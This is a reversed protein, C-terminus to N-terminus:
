LAMTITDLIEIDAGAPHAKAIGNVARTVTLTQTGAVVVTLVRSIAAAGGTVTMTAAPVIQRTPIVQSMVYLSQDNGTITSAEVIETWGAPPAVSTYDDQKWACAIAVQRDVNTTTLLDIVAIPINQQFANQPDTRTTHTPRVNQLRLIVASTTDGAAGGSFTVTPAVESATAFRSFVAFHGVTVPIGWGALPDVTAATNRIAAPLLMLEGAQLGAPLGPTVAANDAHAPTGATITITDDVVATVAVEEGECLARIPPSFDDAFTTWRAGGPRIQWSTALATVAADLTTDDEGLRGLFEPNLDGVGTVGLGLGTIPTLLGTDFPSWPRTNAQILWAYEELRETLGVALQDVPSPNLWVPVNSIKLRDTIDLAAADVVQPEKGYEHLGTADVTVTPYRTENVTGLHLRWGAQDPLQSDAAVNVTGSASYLGVGVPPPNTNLPINPDDLVARASAGSSLRTVTVDNIIQQDDVVPSLAQPVESRAGYILELTPLRNVMAELTRYALAYDERPEYLVGGDVAECERLLAALTAVSQPGMAETDAPDGMMHLRVQEEDCLRRMRIGAVEGTYGAAAGAGAQLQVLDPAPEYWTQHSVSVAGDTGPGFLEFRDVVTLVTVLSVTGSLVGDIYVQVTTTGAATSAVVDFQYIRGLEIAIMDAASVGIGQDRYVVRFVAPSVTTNIALIINCFSGGGGLLATTQAFTHENASTSPMTIVGAVIRYQWSTVVTGTAAPVNFRLVGDATLEWAGASGAPVLQSGGHADGQVITTGFPGDAPLVQMPATADSGEELPWYLDAAPNGITALRYLASDLAEARELRSLIGLGEIEAWVEGGGREGAAPLAEATASPDWKDAWSSAATVARPSWVDAGSIVYLHAFSHITIGIPQFKVTQPGAQNVTRIWAAVEFRNSNPAVGETIPSSSAMPTWGGDPDFPPPMRRLLFRESEIYVGQIAVLIDGPNALVTTLTLDDSSYQGATVVDTVTAPGPIAISLSGWPVAASFFIPATRIGTPGAAPITQYASAMSIFNILTSVGTMGAPIGYIFGRIWACILLGSSPAVVSPATHGTAPTDSFFGAAPYPEGIGIRLPTNLGVKGFLDSMANHPSFRGDPNDFACIARTPSSLSAEDPQGRGISVGGGAAGAGRTELNPQQQWADDYFLEFRVDLVDDGPRWFGKPQTM